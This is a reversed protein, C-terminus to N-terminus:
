TPKMELIFQFYFPFILLIGVMKITFMSLLFNQFSSIKRNQFHFFIQMNAEFVLDTYINLITFMLVDKVSFSALINMLKYKKLRRTENLKKAILNLVM